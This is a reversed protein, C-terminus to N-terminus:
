YTVTVTITDAYAGPTVAQNTANDPLQGYVTTTLANALGTGTGTPATSGGTGDGLITAYTNSTFLNYQLTGAGTATLGMARQAITSGTTSGKDLAVTFPTGVTCKVAVASTSVVAGGGPTYNPFTLNTAAVTCAKLVTASVTFTTTATAAGVNASILSFAGAALGAAILKNM